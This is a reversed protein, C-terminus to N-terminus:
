PPVCAPATCHTGGANYTVGWPLGSLRLTNAQDIFQILRARHGRPSQQRWTGQQTNFIVTSVKEGLEKSSAGM